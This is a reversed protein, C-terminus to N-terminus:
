GHHAVSMWPIAASTMPPRRRALGTDVVTSNTRMMPQNQSILPIMSMTDSNQSRACHPQFSTLPKKPMTTPPNMMPEGKM